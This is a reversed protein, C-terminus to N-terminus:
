AFYAKLQELEEDSLNGALRVSASPMPGKKAQMIKIVSEFVGSSLGRNRLAMRKAGAIVPGVNKYMMKDVIWRAPAYSKDGVEVGFAGSVLGEPKEILIDIDMAQSFTPRAGDPWGGGPLPCTGGAAEVEERSHFRREYRNEMQAIEREEPTFWEKWYVNAHIVIFRMPEKAHAILTSRDLVMDGIAFGDAIHKSTGYTVVVYPLKIEAAEEGEMSGFSMAGTGVTAVEMPTDEFEAVDFTAEAEVEQVEKRAM